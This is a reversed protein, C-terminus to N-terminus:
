SIVQARYPGQWVPAQLNLPEFTVRNERCFTFIEDPQGAAHGFPCSLIAILETGVWVV